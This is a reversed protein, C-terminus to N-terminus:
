KVAKEETQISPLTGVYFGPQEIEKTILLTAKAELRELKKLFEKKEILGNLYAQCWQYAGDRYFQLGQTRRFASQVATTLGFEGTGRLTSSQNEAFQKKLEAELKSVSDLAQIAEAPPEACVKLKWKKGKKGKEKKRDFIVLRRELKTSLARVGERALIWGPIVSTNSFVHEDVVAQEEPKVFFPVGCGSNAVILVMCFCVLSRM